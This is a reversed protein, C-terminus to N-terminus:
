IAKQKAQKKLIKFVKMFKKDKQLEKKVSDIQKRADAENSENIFTKPASFDHGEVCYAGFVHKMLAEMKPETFWRDVLISSLGNWLATKRSIYALAWSAAATSGVGVIFTLISGLWTYPGALVGVLSLTQLFQRGRKFFVAATSVFSIMGTALVSSMEYRAKQMEAQWVKSLALGQKGIDEDFPLDPNDGYKCGNYFYNKAYDDMIRNAEVAPMVILILKFLPLGQMGKIFKGMGSESAKAWLKRITGGKAVKDAKMKAFEDPDKYLAKSVVGRKKTSTDTKNSKTNKAPAKAQLKDRAEEAEGATNFVVSSAFDGKTTDVIRWVDGVQKIDLSELIEHVKMKLM